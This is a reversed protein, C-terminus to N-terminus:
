EWIEFYPDLTSGDTLLVAYLEFPGVVLKVIGCKSPRGSIGQTAPHALDKELGSTALKVGCGNYGRLVAEPIREAGPQTRRPGPRSVRFFGM